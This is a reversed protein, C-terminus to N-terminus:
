LGETLEAVSAGLETEEEGEYDTRTQEEDDAETNEAM